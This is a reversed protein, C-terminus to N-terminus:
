LAFLCICATMFVAIYVLIALTVGPDGAAHFIMFNYTDIDVHM